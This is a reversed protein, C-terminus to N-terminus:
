ALTKINSSVLLEFFALNLSSFTGLNPSLPFALFSLWVLLDEVPELLSDDLDLHLKFLELVFEVASVEGSSETIFDAVQGLLLVLVFSGNFTLVTEWSLPFM